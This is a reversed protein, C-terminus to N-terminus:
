AQFGAGRQNKQWRQHSVVAPMQVCVVTASEKISRPSRFRNRSIEVTM